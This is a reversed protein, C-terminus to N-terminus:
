LVLEHIAAVTMDEVDYGNETAWAVLEPKSMYRITQYREQRIQDLVEQAISLSLEGNNITDSLMHVPAKVEPLSIVELLRAVTAELEAVKNALPTNLGENRNEWQDATPIFWDNRGGMSREVIKDAASDMEGCGQFIFDWIVEQVTGSVDINHNVQHLIDDEINYRIDDYDISDSVIQSFDYMDIAEEVGQAIEVSMDLNGIAADVQESVAAEVAEEISM